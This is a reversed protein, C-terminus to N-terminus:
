LLLYYYNILIVEVANPCKRCLGFSQSNNKESNTIADNQLTPSNEEASRVQRKEHGRM